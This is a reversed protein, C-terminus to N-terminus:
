DPLVRVEPTLLGREVAMKIVAGVAMLIVLAALALTGYRGVISELEAGSLRAGSQLRDAFTRRAPALPPGGPVDGRPPRRLADAVAPEVFPSRGGTAVGPSAALLVAPMARRLEAIEVQSLLVQLELAALRNAIDGDTGARPDPPISDGRADDLPSM